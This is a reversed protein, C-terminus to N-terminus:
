ASFTSDVLVFTCWASGVDPTLDGNLYNIRLGQGPTLLRPRVFNHSHMEFGNNTQTVGLNIPAFFPVGTGVGLGPIGTHMWGFRYIENLNIPSVIIGLNVILWYQGEPVTFSDEDDGPALSFGNFSARLRHPEYFKEMSLVGRVTEDLFDPNRGGSQVSLLDLLGLAQRNIGPM